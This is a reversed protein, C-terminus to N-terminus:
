LFTVGHRHQLKDLDVDAGKRDHFFDELGAPVDIILKRGPEVGLQYTHLLGRPLYVLDGPGVDFTEAGRTVTYRGALGYFCEDIQHHVHFPVEDGAPARSHVVTLGGASETGGM